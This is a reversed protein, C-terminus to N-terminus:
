DEYLRSRAEKGDLGLRTTDILVKTPDSAVYPSPQSQRGHSVEGNSPASTSYCALAPEGEIARRRHAALDWSRQVLRHGHAQTHARALDPSALIPISPSTTHREFLTSAVLAVRARDGVVHLYSGQRAASM